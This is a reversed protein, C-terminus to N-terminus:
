LSDVLKKIEDSVGLEKVKKKLVGAIKKKGEADTGKAMMLKAARKVEAPSMVTAADIFKSADKVKPKRKGARQALRKAEVYAFHPRLTSNKLGTKLAKIGEDLHDGGIVLALLSDPSSMVENAAKAHADNVPPSISVSAEGMTTVVIGDVEWTLRVIVRHVGPSSFLAGQPGRMLTVSHEMRKGADLEVLNDEDLVRVITSFTKREGAPGIVEGSVKGSKMSLSEPVTVSDESTNVLAFNIRVPAGIPVDDIVASVDLELGTADHAEDLPSFPITSHAEGFPIGGGPRVAMDPLHILLRRDSPSFTWGINDPFQQPPVVNDAIQPTVQMINNSAANSPHYLLMAHAIEHIATRLYPADATGFRMGRCRGWKAINPFVWHSALAAGERPINNSDSGYADYMIGRDTIDIFRVCLLHYRWVRDLDASDRWNLMGQHMENLSWGQGSPEAVNNNSVGVTVDWGAHDFVTRWNVSGGDTLPAESRSVHDIEVTAKRYYKSVWGLTLTGIETGRSNKVTGELYDTPSPYGAPATTWKMYASYTGELTWGHNAPDYRHLEFGLEFGSFLSWYELIKTVRVYYRYNSRSLIPIGKAPNPGPLLVPKKIYPPFPSRLWYIPRRYFDGSATRGARHGEIRMTGDMVSMKNYAAKFQMLYCGSKLGRFKIHRKPYLKRYPYPRFDSDFESEMNAEGEPFSLEGEEPLVDPIPPLPGAAGPVYGM